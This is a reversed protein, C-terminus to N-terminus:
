FPCEEDDILGADLEAEIREMLIEHEVDLVGFPSLPGYMALRREVEPSLVRRPRSPEPPAAAVEEDVDILTVSDLPVRLNHGLQFMQRKPAPEPVPFDLWTPTTPNVAAPPCELPRIEEEVPETKVEDAPMDAIFRQYEVELADLDVQCDAPTMVELEDDVAPLPAALEEVPKIAATPNQRPVKQAAGVRPATTTSRLLKLPRKAEDPMYLWGCSLCHFYWAYWMTKGTKPGDHTKRTAVTSCKRCVMTLERRGALVPPLAEAQAKRTWYADLSEDPRRAEAVGIDELSKMIM